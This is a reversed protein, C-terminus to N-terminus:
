MVSLNKGSLAISTRSSAPERARMPVIVRGGSISLANFGLDLFDFAFFLSRDLILIEFARRLHAVLFLLRLVLEFIKQLFPARLALFFADDDALLINQVDDGFPRAHRELAHPLVFHRPQERDFVFHFFDDDALAFGNGGDALRQATRARIQFVRLARNSSKKQEARGANSFSQERFRHGFLHEAVRFREDMQVHAFVHLFEVDRPEDTRRRAVDAVLFASLERFFDPAIRIGDHQEVFDFLRM